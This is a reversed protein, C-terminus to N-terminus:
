GCGCRIEEREGREAARGQRRGVRAKRRRDGAFKAGAVGSRIGSPSWLRRATTEYAGADGASSRRREAAAGGQAAPQFGGRRRPIQIAGGRDAVVAGDGARAAVGGSIEEERERSHDSTAPRRHIPAAAGSIQRGRLGGVGRSGGINSGGEIEKSKPRRRTRASSTEAAM